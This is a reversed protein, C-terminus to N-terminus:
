KYADGTENKRLQNIFDKAVIESPYYDYPDYLNEWLSGANILIDLFIYTAKNSFDSHFQIQHITEEMVTNDLQELLAPMFVRIVTGDDFYINSDFLKPARGFAGKEELLQDDIRIKESDLLKQAHDALPTSLSRIRNLSDQLVMREEQLLNRKEHGFPDIFNVPDGGTYAFLNIGGALGAPDESLFRRFIPSYYRAQMSLLGNSETMVGYQGNFCFPTNVTGSEVTREGYPSYSIRATVNGTADSLAVTSGQWNYHYFRTTPTGGGAPTTEEYVLGRGYIYRTVSGDPNNKVLLRDLKAGRSWTYSTTQSDKTSSARRNEADCVYTTGGATLLRNRADWTLAGLLTGSVPAAQLNGNDDSAVPQGNYTELRNDVDYTM